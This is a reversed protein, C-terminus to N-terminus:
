LRCVHIVSVIVAIVVVVMGVKGYVASTKTNTYITVERLDTLTPAIIDKLSYIILGTILTSKRRRFTKFTM